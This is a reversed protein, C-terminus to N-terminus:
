NSPFVPLNDSLKNFEIFRGIPSPGIIRLGGMYSSHSLRITIWMQGEDRTNNKSLKDKSTKVKWIFDLSLM